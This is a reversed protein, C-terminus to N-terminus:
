QPVTGAIEDEFQHHVEKTHKACAVALDTVSDCLALSQNLPCKLVIRNTPTWLFCSVPLLPSHSSRVFRRTVSLPLGDLRQTRIKLIHRPIGLHPLYSDQSFTRVPAAALGLLTFIITKGKGTGAVVMGDNGELVKLAVWMQWDHPCYGFRKKTEERLREEKVKKKFRPWKRRL